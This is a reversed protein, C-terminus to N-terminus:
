LILQNVFSNPCGINAYVLLGMTPGMSIVIKYCSVGLHIGINLPSFWFWNWNM